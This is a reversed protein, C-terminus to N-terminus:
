DNYYDEKPFCPDTLAMIDAYVMDDITEAFRKTVEDLERPKSEYPVVGMAALMEEDITRWGGYPLNHKKM